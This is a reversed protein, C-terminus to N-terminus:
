AALWEEAGFRSHLRLWARRKFAGFDSINPTSKLLVGVNLLNISHFGPKSNQNGGGTERDRSDRCEGMM